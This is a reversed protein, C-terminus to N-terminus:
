RNRETDRERVHDANLCTLRRGECERERRKKTEVGIGDEMERDRDRERM